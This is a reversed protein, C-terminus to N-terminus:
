GVFGLTVSGLLESPNPGGARLHVLFERNGSGGSLPSPIIGMPGLGLDWASWLVRSIADIRLGLDRVIGEKVGQRGVEFQPKILLLFDADASGASVLAPLVLGLPIFSLDAVILTPQEDSRTLAALAARDLERVNVGEFSRVRLDLAVAPALQGHGVDVALVERAGRELLVQSFGGTSAGADLALRGAPDVGFADLAALLKHAGRSVYHDPASVLIEDAEDVRHSAKTISRGGVSVVGSDILGAAQGRSRALGREVLAADIRSSM